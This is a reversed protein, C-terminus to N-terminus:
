RPGGLTFYFTAGAGPASDVWIRGDHRTIIRQVTALGIGTGSFEAASHLRNFPAFLRAARQMDFGVGNDRVFFIPGDQSYRAGFEIRPQEHASTFKWANGLLNELAIGLLVPDGTATVGEAIVTDVNRNPESRALETTISRALASLNVRTVSLQGKAARSFKLLADIIEGMRLAADRVSDLYRQGDADLQAGCHKLLLSGFGNIARLPARLDHSVTYAFTELERNALSLEATRAAVRQELEANLRQLEEQTSKLATIDAIIGVVQRVRGDADRAFATNRVLYWGWTGDARRYRAELEAVADDSLDPLSQRFAISRERDEPHRLAEAVALETEGTDDGYGLLQRLTRNGYIWRGQELDFVYIHCPAVTAIKNIFRASEQQVQEALKRASIDRIFGFGRTPRGSEDQEMLGVCSVWVTAGDPRIIRYEIDLRRIRERGSVPGACASEVLSRDDPHVVQALFEEAGLPGADEDRGFLDYVESSWRRRNNVADWEWEGGRLGELVLRLREETASQRANAARRPEAACEDSQTTKSRVVIERVAIAALDSVTDLEDKSWERSKFDAVCFCGLSQRDVTILPVGLYAVFHLDRAERSVHGLPHKSADTIVVPKGCGVVQECLSNALPMERLSALLGRASKLYQRQDDALSLMAVPTHLDRTALRTLREFSEEPASDLLGTARVAALRQPDAIVTSSRSSPIPTRPMAPLPTRASLASSRM